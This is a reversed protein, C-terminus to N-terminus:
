NTRSVRQVNARMASQIQVGVGGRVGSGAYATAAGAVTAAALTVSL